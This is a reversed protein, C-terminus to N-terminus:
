RKLEAELTMPTLGGRITPRYLRKFLASQEASFPAVPLHLETKLRHIMVEMNHDRVIDNSLDNLREDFMTNLYEFDRVQVFDWDTLMTKLCGELAGYIAYKGNEVDMGVSCWVLLREYNGSWIKREFNDPTVRLGRDLCMKVGERFGARWAQRADANNVTTCYSNAMQLYNVGWCFDVQNEDDEAHEHTKMDLIAQKPWCKIGGNGYVLGNIVNKAGWSFVTQDPDAVQSLDLVIDFFREDVINDGDVIVVRDTESIEACAKHAADSGEVGHVRKAWPAKSLLDAYNEECNPEDYSLFVLDLEAIPIMSM